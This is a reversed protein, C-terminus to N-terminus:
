PHNIRDLRYLARLSIVATGPIRQIMAEIQPTLEEAFPRLQVEEGRVAMVATSATSYHYDKNENRGPLYRVGVLCELTCKDVEHSFQPGERLEM